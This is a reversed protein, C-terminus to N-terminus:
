QEECLPFFLTSGSAAFGALAKRRRSKSLDTFNVSSFENFKFSM